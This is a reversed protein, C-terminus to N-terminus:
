RGIRRAGNLRAIECYNRIAEDAEQPTTRIARVPLPAAENMWRTVASGFRGYNSDYVPGAAKLWGRVALKVARSPQRNCPSKLEALVWRGKRSELSVTARAPRLVRYIYFIGNRVQESYSAVCNHCQDGEIILEVPQTLPVIDENGPIPPEPFPKLLLKADSGKMVNRHITALRDHEDHMTRISIFPARDPPLELLHELRLLDALEHAADFCYEEAALEHLLAPTVRCLLSPFGLIWIHDGILRPLHAAVQRAYPNLAIGVLLGYGTVPADFAGRQEMTLIQPTVSALLKVCSKTPPFGLAGAIEKRKQRLLVPIQGPELKGQDLKLSLGYVLTHGGTLLLDEADRGYSSVFRLITTAYDGFASATEKLPGPVTDIWRAKELASRQADDQDTRYGFFALQPKLTRGSVVPLSLSLNVLKWAPTLGQSWASFHPWPLAVIRRGNEIFEYPRAGAAVLPPVFFCQM